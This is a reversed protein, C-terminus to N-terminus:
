IDHTKFIAAIDRILQLGDMSIDDIRGVFPSVYTAGARAAM